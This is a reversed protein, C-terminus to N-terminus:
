IEWPNVIAIDPIKKFDHTNRTILVFNHILATSAIIADPLKITFQKRLEITKEIIESSIGYMNALGMFDKLHDTGPHSLIEIKNIFSINFEENLIKAVANHSAAPLLHGVFEILINTDIM